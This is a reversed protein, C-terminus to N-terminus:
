DQHHIYWDLAKWNAMSDGLWNDFTGNNKVKQLLQSLSTKITNCQSQKSIVIYENTVSIPESLFTLEKLQEPYRTQVTNITPLLPAIFYDIRGSILKLFNQEVTAVHTIQLHEKMFLSFKDDLVMGLTVGGNFHTLDAKSKIRKKKDKRFFITHATSTFAPEIFDLYLMRDVTKRVGIIIDIDGNKSNKLTRRWPYPQTREIPIKISSLLRNFLDFGIGTLKGDQEYSIPANNANASVTLKECAGWSSLPLSVLALAFLFRTANFILTCPLYNM